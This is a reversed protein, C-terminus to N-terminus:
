RIDEGRCPRGEHGTGRASFDMCCCSPLLFLGHRRGEGRCMGYAEGLRRYSLCYGLASIEAAHAGCLVGRLRRAGGAEGGDAQFLRDVRSCLLCPPALGFYDAFRAVAYALLGNILLLAILVWELAAHALASTVRHAPALKGAVVSAAM